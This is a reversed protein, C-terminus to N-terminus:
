SRPAAPSPAPCPSPAPAALALRPRPRTRPSPLALALGLCPWPLALALGLCPSPAVPLCQEALCAETCSSKKTRRRVAASQPAEDVLQEVAMASGEWGKRRGCINNSPSKEAGRVVLRGWQRLGVVGRADERPERRCFSPALSRSTFSPAPSTYFFLIIFRKHRHSIVSSLM